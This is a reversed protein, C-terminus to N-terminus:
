GVLMELLHSKQASDNGILCCIQSREVTFNYVAKSKRNELDKLDKIEVIGMNCNDFTVKRVCIFRKIFSVSNLLLDLGIGILVYVITNYIFQNLGLKLSWNAKEEHYNDFTM